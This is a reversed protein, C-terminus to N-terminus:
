VCRTIELSKGIGKCRVQCDLGSAKKEERIEKIMDRIKDYGGGASDRVVARSHDAM